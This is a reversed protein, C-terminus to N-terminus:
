LAHDQLGVEIIPHQAGLKRRSLTSPIRAPREALSTRCKHGTERSSRMIITVPGPCRFGIVLFPPCQSRLRSADTMAGPTSEAGTWAPVKATCAPRGSLSLSLSLSRLEMAQGHMALAEAFGAVTGVPCCEGPKRPPGCSAIDRSLRTISQLWCPHRLNLQDSQM